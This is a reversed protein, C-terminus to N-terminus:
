IDKGQDKGGEPHVATESALRDTGGYGGHSEEGTAGAPVGNKTGTDAHTLDDTPSKPKHEGKTIESM